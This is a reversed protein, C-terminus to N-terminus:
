GRGGGTAQAIAYCLAEADEKDSFHHIPRDNRFVTWWGPPNNCTDYHLVDGPKATALYPAAVVAIDPGPTHKAEM